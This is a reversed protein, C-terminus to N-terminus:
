HPPPPSAPHQPPHTDKLAVLKIKQEETLFSFITQDKKVFLRLEQKKIESIQEILTEVDPMAKSDSMALQRLENQLVMEQEFLKHM